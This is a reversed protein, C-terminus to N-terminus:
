PLNHFFLWWLGVTVSVALLGVKIYKLLAVYSLWFDEDAGGEYKCNNM